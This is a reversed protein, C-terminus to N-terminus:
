AGPTRCRHATRPRPRVGCGRDVAGSAPQRFSARTRGDLGVLLGDNQNPKGAFAEREISASAYREADIVFKLVDGAYAPRRPAKLGVPYVIFGRVKREGSNDIPMVIAPVVSGTESPRASGTPPWTNIGSALMSCASWM